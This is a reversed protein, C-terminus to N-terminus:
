RHRRITEWAALARKRAFDHDVIPLPYDVDLQIQARALVEGSARWPSHVYKAPMHALAPLWKKVYVGDPDFRAGQSVPNFIRFYPAADAGCGATWQWGLTNNALDADVLTDWFWRAGHRWDLLLHKVLFSAVVMRVRNHMWGTTWLERMGADVIPYGTEGRQWASLSREDSRWPFREFEPRLPADITHPFHYLLYHAFERWVLQRLFAETASSITIRGAHMEHQCMASWVQKPSLEGFHLYPSLRSVGEKHPQDRADSYGQAASDIFTDLASQAAAEGFKWRARVGGAWDIRPELKLADIPLSEVESSPTSISTPAGLPAGPESLKKCHRWYPTFVKFAGGAQTKVANPEFLLSAASSAAEVGAATLARKIEIDRKILSPEYCRNWLVVGAGTEKVLALLTPLTPGRRVILCSGLARLAGDLCQLSQHLWYRSAAGPAWAGEEDPAWIFVPYVAPGRACGNTLAPNDALRLDRRFWVIIPTM